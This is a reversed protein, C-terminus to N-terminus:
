VSREVRLSRQFTRLAFSITAMGISGGSVVQISRYLAQCNLGSKVNLSIPSGITSALALYRTLFYVIIPFPAKEKKDLLVMRLRLVSCGGLPIDRCNCSKSKHVRSTVERLKLAIPSNWDIM